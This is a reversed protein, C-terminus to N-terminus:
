AEANEVVEVPSRRQTVFRLQYLHAPSESNGHKIFAKAKELTSFWVANEELSNFSLGRGLFIWRKGLYVQVAFMWHEESVAKAFEPAAAILEGDELSVYGFLNDILVPVRVLGNEAVPAGQLEPCEPDISDDIRWPGLTTNKLLEKSRQIIDTM